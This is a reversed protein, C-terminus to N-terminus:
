VSAPRRVRQLDHDFLYPTHVLQQLIQETRHLPGIDLALRHRINMSEKHLMGRQETLLRSAAPDSNFTGLRECLRHHEILYLDTTREVIQDEVGDLIRIVPRGDEQASLGDLAFKM